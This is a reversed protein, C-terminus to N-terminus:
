TNQKSATNEQDEEEKAEDKLTLPIEDTQQNGQNTKDSAGHNRNAELGFPGGREKDNNQADEVNERVVPPAYLRVVM